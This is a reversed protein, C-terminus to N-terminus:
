MYTWVRGGDSGEEDSIIDNPGVIGRDPELNVFDAHGLIAAATGEIGPAVVVQHDVAVGAVGVRDGGAQSIAEVEDAVFNNSDEHGGRVGASLKVRAAM